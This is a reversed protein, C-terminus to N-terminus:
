TELSLITFKDGSINFTVIFRSVIFNPIFLQFRRVSVSLLFGVKGIGLILHGKDRTRHGTELTWRRSNRTEHGTELTWRGSNRTVHGMDWTGHGADQTGHGTDRTGHGTELTSHGSDLTGLGTDVTWTKCRPGSIRQSSHLYM